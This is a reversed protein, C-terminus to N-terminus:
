IMSYEKFTYMNKCFLYREIFSVGRSDEGIRELFSMKEVVYSGARVTWGRISQGVTEYQVFADALLM